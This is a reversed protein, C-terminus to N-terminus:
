ELEGEELEGELSTDVDGELEASAEGGSSRMADTASKKRLFRTRSSEGAEEM